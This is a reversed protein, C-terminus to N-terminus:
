PRNRPAVAAGGRGRAGTTRYLPEKGARLLSLVRAVVQDITLGTTDVTLHADRYDDERQRYLAEIEDPARGPRLRAPWAQDLRETARTGYAYRGPRGDDGKYADIGRAPPRAAPQLALSELAEGELQRFRDEGDLRFIERFPM